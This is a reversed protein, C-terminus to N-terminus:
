PRRGAAHANFSSPSGHARIELRGVESEFEPVREDRRAGREGAVASVPALAMMYTGIDLADWRYRPAVAHNIAIDTEVITGITKGVVRLIDFYLAMGPLDDVPMLEDLVSEPKKRKKM